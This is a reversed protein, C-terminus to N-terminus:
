FRNGKYRRKIIVSRDCNEQKDLKGLINSESVKCKKEIALFERKQISKDRASKKERKNLNVARHIDTSKDQIVKREPDLFLM